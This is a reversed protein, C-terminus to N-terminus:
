SNFMKFMLLVFFGESLVWADCIERFGNLQEYFNVLWNKIQGPDLNMM